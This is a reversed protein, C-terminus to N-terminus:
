CLAFYISVAPYILVHGSTLSIVILLFLSVKGVQDIDRLRITYAFSYIFLLFGIIGYRFFIDFIDIEVMKVVDNSHGIGMLKNTLNQKEFVEYNEKLFTLRDNYVVRNVFDYSIINEVQFFDKQIIMNKFTRTKTFLFGGLSIIIVTTLIIITKILKTQKIFLKERERYLLYLCTFIIGGLLVKTGILLAVVISGIIIFSLLFYKKKNKLYVSVIPLLGVIIASFENISTFVGKFGSKGDSELYANAGFGFIYSILFTGLYTIIITTLVKSKDVSFIYDKFYLISLPLYLFKLISSISSTLGLKLYLYQYLFSILGFLLLPILLFLNKRNKLLIFIITMLYATRALMSLPLGFFSSVDLLPGLLLFIIMIYNKKM